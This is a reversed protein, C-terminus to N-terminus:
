PRASVSMMMYKASEEDFYFKQQNAVNTVIVSDPLIVDKYDLNTKDDLCGVFSLVSLVSIILIRNKMIKSKEAYSLFEGM